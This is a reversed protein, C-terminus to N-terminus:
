KKRSKKEELLTEVMKAANEATFGSDMEVKIYMGEGIERVIMAAQNKDSVLRYPAQFGKFTLGRKTKGVIGKSPLGLRAALASSTAFEAGVAPKNMKDRILIRAAGTSATKPRDKNSGSLSGEPCGIRFTTTKGTVYDKTLKLYVETWENQKTKKTWVTDITDWSEDKGMLAQMAEDIVQLTFGKRPNTWTRICILHDKGPTTKMTYQMSGHAKSQEGWAVVPYEMLFSSGSIKLSHKGEWFGASEEEDDCQSAAKQGLWGLDTAAVEDMAIVYSFDVTKPKPRFFAWSCVIPGAAALIALLVLSIGTTRRSIRGDSFRSMALGKM